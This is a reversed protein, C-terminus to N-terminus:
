KEWERLIPADRKEQLKEEAELENPAFMVKIQTTDKEQLETRIQRAFDKADNFKDFEQLKELHKVLALEGVNIKYVYYPM